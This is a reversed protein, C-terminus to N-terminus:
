EWVMVNIITHRERKRQFCIESMNHTQTNSQKPPSLHIKPAGTSWSCSQKSKKTAHQESLQWNYNTTNPRQQTPKRQLATTENHKRKWLEWVRVNKKRQPKINEQRNRFVVFFVLFLNNPKKKKKQRHLMQLFLTLTFMTIFLYCYCCCCRFLIFLTFLTAFIKVRGKTLCLSRKADSVSFSPLLSPNRNCLRFLMLLLLLLSRLSFWFAFFIVPNVKYNIKKM